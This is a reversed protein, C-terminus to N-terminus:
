FCVLPANPGIGERVMESQIVDLKTMQLIVPLESGAIVVASSIAMDLNPQTARASELASSDSLPSSSSSMMSMVGLMLCFKVRDDDLGRGPLSPTAAKQTSAPLSSSAKAAKLQKATKVLSLEMSTLCKMGTKIKVVDAKM